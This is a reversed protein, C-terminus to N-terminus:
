RKSHREEPSLEAFNRELEFLKDCYQKGILALSEPRGKEPISKLAEDFKRRLHAWCGVVTVDSRLKHYGEYGDAHLYGKFDKLFAAPHEAKRSPQYEYLVIPYDADGSARYLWM